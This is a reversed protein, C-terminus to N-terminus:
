MDSNLILTSYAISCRFFKDILYHRRQDLSTVCKQYMECGNSACMTWENRINGEKALRADCGQLTMFLKKGLLRAAHLDLTTLRSFLENLTANASLPFGPALFTQGFYFHLVDYRWQRGLGYAVSRVATEASGAGERALVRDAPYKLWTHSRTTVDSSVGLRREARSLVWPQNGVNVPGHLVKM